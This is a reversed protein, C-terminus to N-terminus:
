EDSEFVSAVATKLEEILRAMDRQLKAGTGSPLKLATPRHANEFNHIYCWDAPSEQEAAKRDLFQRVTTHKGLANPGLAFLNFGDSRISIGFRLAEIARDQGLIEDLDELEATTRFRLSRPDCRRKLASPPLAKLAM